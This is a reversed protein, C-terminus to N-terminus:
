LAGFSCFLLAFFDNRPPQFGVRCDLFIFNLFFAVFITNIFQIAVCLEAISAIVAKRNNLDLIM